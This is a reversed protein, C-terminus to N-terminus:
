VGPKQKRRELEACCATYLEYTEPDSVCTSYIIITLQVTSLKTVNILM